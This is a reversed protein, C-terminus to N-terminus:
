PECQVFPAIDVTNHLADPLTQIIDLFKIRSSTLKNPVGISPCYVFAKGEHDANNEEGKEAAEEDM